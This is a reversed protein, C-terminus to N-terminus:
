RNALLYDMVVNVFILTYEDSFPDIVKQSQWMFCVFKCVECLTCVYVHLFNRLNQYLADGYPLPQAICLYYVDSVDSTLYLLLMFV